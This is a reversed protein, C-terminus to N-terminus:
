FQFPPDVQLMLRVNPDPDTGQDLGNVIIHNRPATAFRGTRASAFAQSAPITWSHATAPAHRHTQGALAPASGLIVAGVLAFATKTLMTMDGIYKLSQLRPKRIM